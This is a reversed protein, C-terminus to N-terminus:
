IVSVQWGLGYNEAIPCADGRHHLSYYLWTGDIFLMAKLTNKSTPIAFNEKKPTQSSSDNVNRTQKQVLHMLDQIQQRQKTLQDVVDSNFTTSPRSSAFGNLEDNDWPASKDLTFKDFTEDFETTEEFPPLPPLSIDNDESKSRRYTLTEFLQTCKPSFAVSPLLGSSLALGFLQFRRYFYVNQKKVGM